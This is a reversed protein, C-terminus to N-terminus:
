GRSLLSKQSSPEDIRPSTVQPPAGNALYEELQRELEAFAASQRHSVVRKPRERCDQSRARRVHGVCALAQRRRGQGGALSSGILRFAKVKKDLSSIKREILKRIEAQDGSNKRQEFGKLELKYKM